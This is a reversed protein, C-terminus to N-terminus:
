NLEKSFVFSSIQKGKEIEWDVEGTIKFGNKEGL